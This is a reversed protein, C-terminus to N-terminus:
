HRRHIKSPHETLLPWHHHPPPHLHSAWGIPTVLFVVPQTGRNGVIGTELEKKIKLIREKIEKVKTTTIGSQNAKYCCEEGLFICTGGKLATLLDLARQNQLM